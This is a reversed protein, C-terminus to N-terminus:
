RPENSSDYGEELALTEDLIVRYIRMLAEDPLPGPNKQVIRALIELERELARMPLGRARKERGIKLAYRAREGLLRVIQEDIEDIRWRWEDV